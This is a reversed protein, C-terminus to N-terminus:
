RGRGVVGHRPRTVWRTLLSLLTVLAILVLSGGWALRQAEDYPQGAYTYIQVPLSSIERRLSFRWGQNNLATFLLPATEGAIRATALMIGTIVGSRAAPLVAHLVTRYHPVGLALSADRLSTPVLRIMEETTRLVIPILILAL